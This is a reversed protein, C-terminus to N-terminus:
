IFAPSLLRRGHRAVDLSTKADIEAMKESYVGLDLLKELKRDSAGELHEVVARDRGQRLLRVTVVEWMAMADFLDNPDELSDFEPESTVIKAAVVAAWTM